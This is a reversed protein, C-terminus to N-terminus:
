TWCGNPAIVPDPCPKIWGGTARLVQQDEIAISFEMRKSEPPLEQSGSEHPSKSAKIASLKIEAEFNGPIGSENLAEGLISFIESLRLDIQKKLKEMEEESRM